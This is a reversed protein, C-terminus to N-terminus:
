HSQITIPETLSVSQYLISTKKNGQYVLNLARRPKDLIEYLETLKMKSKNHTPDADIVSVIVYILGELTAPSSGVLKYLEIAERLNGLMRLCAAANLLISFNSTQITQHFSRGTLPLLLFHSM